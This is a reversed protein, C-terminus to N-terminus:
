CATECDFVLYKSWREKKRQFNKIIASHAISRTVEELCRCVAANHEKLSPRDHSSRRSLEEELSGSDKTCCTDEMLAFPVTCCAVDATRVIYTLAM